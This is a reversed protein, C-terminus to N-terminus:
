HIFYLNNKRGIIFLFRDVCLGAFRLFVSHAVFFALFPENLESSPDHSPSGVSVSTGMVQESSADSESLGAGRRLTSKSWVGVRSCGRCIGVRQPEDDM